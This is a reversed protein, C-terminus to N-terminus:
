KALVLFNIASSTCQTINTNTANCSIEVLSTSIRCKQCESRSTYSHPRASSLVCSYTNTVPAKKSGIVSNAQVRRQSDGGGIMKEWHDKQQCFVPWNCTTAPKREPVCSIFHFKRFNSFHRRAQMCQMFGALLAPVSGFSLLHCKITTARTRTQVKAHTTIRRRDRRDFTLDSQKM